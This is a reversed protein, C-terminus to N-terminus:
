RIVSTKVDGRFRLNIEKELIGDYIQLQTNQRRPQNKILFSRTNKHKPYNGSYHYSGSPKRM